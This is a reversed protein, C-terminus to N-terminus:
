DIIGAKRLASSIYAGVVDVIATGGDIVIAAGTMFSSEESALFVCIGEMEEPVAFRRLPMGSASMKFFEEKEMKLLEAFQGFEKDTMDTRVGGPCVVNCLINYKGYDLAVQQSLMILAAKSTCYAPMAPLCRLGGLSAINIISGGGAKIMHPIVERMTLFPGNLNIGLVYLWDDLTIETM